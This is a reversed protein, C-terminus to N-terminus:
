RLGHWSTFPEHNFTLEQSEQQTNGSDRAAHCSLHERIFFHSRVPPLKLHVGFMDEFCFNISRVRRELVKGWLGRDAIGWTFVQRGGIRLHDQQRTWSMQTWLLRQSVVFCDECGCSAKWVGRGLAIETREDQQKNGALRWPFYSAGEM